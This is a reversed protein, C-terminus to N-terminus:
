LGHDYKGVTFKIKTQTDEPFPPVTIMVQFSNKIRNSNFICKLNNLQSQMLM